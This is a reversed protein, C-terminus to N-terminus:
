YLYVSDSSDAGVFLREGGSSFELSSGFNLAGPDPQEFINLTNWIQLDAISSDTFRSFVTLTNVESGPNLLAAAVTDSEASVAVTLESNIGHFGAPTLEASAIFLGDADREFLHVRAQPKEAIDNRNITASPKSLCDIVLIQGDDSLALNESFVSRMDPIQQNGCHTSDNVDNADAIGAGLQQILQGPGSTLDFLYASGTNIGVSDSSRMDGPAAVALVTGDTSLDITAGFNIAANEGSHNDPQLYDSLLWRRTTADFRYLSVSGIRDDTQTQAFPDTTPNSDGPASVAIVRTDESIAVQAGFHAFDRSYGAALEAVQIWTEGAREFVFAAGANDGFRADGPAGVVVTDGNGSTAVAEGLRANFTPTHSVLTAGQFWINGVEFFLEASGADAGAPLDITNAPNNTINDTDQLDTQQPAETGPAGVVLVRGAAASTLSAGFRDFPEPSPATLRTIALQQLDAVPTNFSRLCDDVSCVSLIFENDQWAFLYPTVPLTFETVTNDLGSAIVISERSLRNFQEISVTTDATVPLWSFVLEGVDADITLIPAPPPVLIDNSLDIVQEEQNDQNNDPLAAGLDNETDTANASEADTDLQTDSQDELFTADSSGGITGDPGNSSCASLLLILSTILSTGLKNRTSASGRFRGNFPRRVVVAITAIRHM